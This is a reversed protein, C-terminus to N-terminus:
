CARGELVWRATRRKWRAQIKTGETITATQVYAPWVTKNEDSGALSMTTGTSTAAPLDADLTGEIIESHWGGLLVLGWKTGTGTERDLILAGGRWDTKLDATVDDDVDAYPHTAYGVSLRAPTLGAICAVGIAGASIPEWAVAFKGTHGAETPTVGHFAVDLSKWATPNDTVSPWVSGLGLVGFRDVDDSTTNKLLVLGAQQMARSRGPGTRARLQEVYAVADLMANYIRGPIAAYSSDPIKRYQNTM